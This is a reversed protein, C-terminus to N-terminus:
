GLMTELELLWVKSCSKAFVRLRPWSVRQCWFSGPCFLRSSFPWHSRLEICLPLFCTHTTHCLIRCPNHPTIHRRVQISRANLKNHTHIKKKKKKEFRFCRVRWNAGVIPRTGDWSVWVLVLCSEFSVSVFYDSSSQVRNQYMSWSRFSLVSFYSWFGLRVLKGNGDM